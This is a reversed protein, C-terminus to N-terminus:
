TKQTRNQWNKDNSSSLQISRNKSDKKETQETDTQSDSGSKDLSPISKKVIQNRQKETVSSVSGSNDKSPVKTKAMKQDQNNKETSDM